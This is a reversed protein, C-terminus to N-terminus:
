SLPSYRPPLTVIPEQLVSEVIIGSVRLPISEEVKWEEGMEEDRSIL